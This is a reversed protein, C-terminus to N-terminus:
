CLYINFVGYRMTKYARPDDIKKRLASSEKQSEALRERLGDVQCRLSEIEDRSQDALVRHEQNLTEIEEKRQQLAKKAETHMNAIAGDKGVYTEDTFLFHTM